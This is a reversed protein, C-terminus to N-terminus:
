FYYRFGINTGRFFPRSTVTWVSKGNKTKKESHAGLGHFLSVSFHEAPFYEIGLTLNVDFSQSREDTVTDLVSGIPTFVTDYRFKISDPPQGPVLSTDSIVQQTDVLTKFIQNFFSIRQFSFGPRILFNVKETRILNAQVGADFRFDALTKKSPDPTILPDLNADVTSDVVNRLNLGFGLDVGIRETVWYRAGIPADDNFFGFGVKGKKDVAGATGFFLFLGAALLWIKKM